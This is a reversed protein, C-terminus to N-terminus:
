WSWCFCNYRFGNIRLLRIAITNAATLSASTLTPKVNEDFQIQETHSDM